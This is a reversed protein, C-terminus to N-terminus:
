TNHKDFKEKLRQSIMQNLGNSSPFAALNSKPYSEETEQTETKKMILGKVPM